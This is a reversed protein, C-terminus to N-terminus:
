ETYSSAPFTAYHRKQETIAFMIRRVSVNKPCLFANGM